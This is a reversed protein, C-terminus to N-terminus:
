LLRFANLLPSVCELSSVVPSFDPRSSTTHASKRLSGGSTPSMTKTAAHWLPCRLSASFPFNWTRSSVGLPSTACNRSSSLSSSTSTIAATRRSLLPHVKRKICSGACSPCCKMSMKSGVIPFTTRLRIGPALPRILAHKAISFPATTSRGLVESILDTLAPSPQSVALPSTSRSTEAMRRSSLPELTSVIKKPLKSPHPTLCEPSLRVPSPLPSSSTMATLRSTTGSTTFCIKKTILM